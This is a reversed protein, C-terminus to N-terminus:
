SIAAAASSQFKRHYFGYYGFILESVHYMYVCLGASLIMYVTCKSAFMAYPGFCMDQVAM